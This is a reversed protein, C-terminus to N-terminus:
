KKKKKKKNRFEVVIVEICRLGLIHEICFLVRSPRFHIEMLFDSSEKRKVVIFKRCVHLM